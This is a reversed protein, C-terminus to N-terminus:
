LELSDSKLEEWDDRAENWKYVHLTLVRDNKDYQLMENATSGIRKSQLVKSGVVRAHDLLEIRMEGLPGAFILYELVGGGEEPDLEEKEHEIVDFRTRIKEVLEQWRERTM